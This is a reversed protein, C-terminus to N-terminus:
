CNAVGIRFFPPIGDFEVDFPREKHRPTDGIKEDRSCLNFNEQLYAIASSSFVWPYMM